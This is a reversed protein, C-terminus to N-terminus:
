RSQSRFPGTFKDDVQNHTRPSCKNDRGPRTSAWRDVTEPLWGDISGIQFDAPPLMDKARYSKMTNVSYGTRAAFEGISLGRITVPFSYVRVAM